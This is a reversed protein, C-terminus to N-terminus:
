VKVAGSKQSSSLGQWDISELKEGKVVLVSRTSKHVVRESVSGLVLSGINGLGRSGVLVLDANVEEACGCIKDVVNGSLIRSQIRVGGTGYKYVGGTGNHPEIALSNEPFHKFILERHFSAFRNQEEVTNFQKMPDSSVVSLVILDTRLLVALEAARSMVDHAHHSQDVAALITRMKRAVERRIARIIRTM